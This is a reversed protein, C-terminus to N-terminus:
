DKNQSGTILLLNSRNDKPFFKDAMRARQEFRISDHTLLHKRAIKRIILKMRDDKESDILRAAKDLFSETTGGNEEIMLNITKRNITNIDFRQLMPLTDPTSAIEAIHDYLSLCLAQACDVFIFEIESRPVREDRKENNIVAELDDIINVYEADLPKLINFLVQSPATYLCDVLNQKKEIDMDGFHSVLSQAIIEVYKIVRSMKYMTKEADEENYDYLDRYKIEEEEVQQVREEANDQIHHLNDKDEKEPLSIQVKRTMSFFNVNSVDYNLEEIDSLMEEVMECLRLSFNTNKRLYSIFMLITDNIGFCINKMLYEVDEDGNGNQEMLKSIKSAVFYALHNRNQFEYQNSGSIFRLVKAKGTSNIFDQFDVKVMFLRCYEDVIEAIETITLKEHKNKHLNYAIEELIILYFKVNHEASHSIIATRINTEFIVNYVDEVHRSAPEQNFFYKIYNIITEPSLNFLGHRKQVLRDIMSVLDDIEESSATVGLLSSINQILPYRKEKHFAEIRFEIIDNGISLKEKVSNVVNLDLYDLSSFVIFRVQGVLYKLLDMRHKEKKILDLDDIYVIKRNADEQKYRNFELPDDSYQECFLESLLDDIKAPRYHEHHLFLPIMGDVTSKSHLYRLLTSKGSKEKGTINIVQTSSMLDFLKNETIVEKEDGVTKSKSNTLKPFIFYDLVSGSVGQEDEYLHKTFTDKIHLSNDKPTIRKNSILDDGSYFAKDPSWTFMSESLLMNETDIVMLSFTSNHSYKGSYEGGASIIINGKSSSIQIADSNHEHGQFVVDTNARLINELTTKVDWHFWDIGHHMIAISLDTEPEKVLLHFAEDPLFHLEKNDEGLTSFPATNILTAQIRFGDMNIFQNEAFKDTKFCHKSRSYDFFNTLRDVEYLFAVKHTGKKYLEQIETSSLVPKGEFDMDHNGPVVLLKIYGGVKEGLECQLKGFFRRIRKYEEETGSHALDGSCILILHDLSNVTNLISLIKEQKMTDQSSESDHIDSLHLFGINM